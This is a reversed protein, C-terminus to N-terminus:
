RRKPLRPQWFWRASAMGGCPRVPYGCSCWPRQSVALGDGLSELLRDARQLQGPAPHAGTDLDLILSQKGRGYAQWWLSETQHMPAMKRVQLGTPPDVAVVDCGVHALLYSCFISEYDCLDIVKTGEFM